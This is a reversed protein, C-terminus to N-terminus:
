NKKLKLEILVKELINRGFIDYLINTKISILFYTLEGVVGYNVYEEDIYSNNYQM